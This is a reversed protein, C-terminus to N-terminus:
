PATIISFKPNLSVDAWSGYDIFYISRRIPSNFELLIFRQGSQRQWTFVVVASLMGLYELIQQIRRIFFSLYMDGIDKVWVPIDPRCKKIHIFNRRHAAAFFLAL